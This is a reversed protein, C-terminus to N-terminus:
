RAKASIVKTAKGSKITVVVKQGTKLKKTSKVTLTLKRKASKSTTAKAGM